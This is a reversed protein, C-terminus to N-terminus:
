KKKDDIIVRCVMDSEWVSNFMDPAENFGKENADDADVDVADVDGEQLVARSSMTDLILISYTFSNLLYAYM